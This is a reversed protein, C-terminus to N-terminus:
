DVRYVNKINQAFYQGVSGASILNEYEAEPVGGYNYIRGNNFQVALSQKEADYGVAAIMSSSVPTLDM